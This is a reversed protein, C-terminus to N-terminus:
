CSATGTEKDSQEFCSQRFTSLFTRKCWRIHVFHTVLTDSHLSSQTIPKAFNFLNFLVPYLEFCGDVVGGIWDKTQFDMVSM